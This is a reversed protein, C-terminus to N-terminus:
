KRTACESGELFKNKYQEGLKESVCGGVSEAILLDEGTLSIIEPVNAKKACVGFNSGISQHCDYKSIKFCSLLSTETCLNRQLEVKLRKLYVERRTDTKLEWKKPKAQSDPSAVATTPLVFGFIMALFITSTFVSPRRSMIKRNHSCFERISVQKRDPLNLTFWQDSAHRM